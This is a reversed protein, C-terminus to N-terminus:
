FRFLRDLAPKLLPFVLAILGAVAALVGAVIGIIAGVGLGGKKEPAQPATDKDGSDMDPKMPGMGNNDPMSEPVNQPNDEGRPNSEPYNKMSACARLAGAAESKLALLLENREAARQERLFNYGDSFNNPQVDGPNILSHKTFRQLFNDAALAQTAQEPTFSVPTYIGGPIEGTGNLVYDFNTQIIHLASVIDDDNQFNHNTRLINKIGESATNSEQSGRAADKFTQVFTRFQPNELAIKRFVFQDVTMDYGFWRAAKENEKHVTIECMNGTVTSTIPHQASQALAQTPSAVIAAAIGLTLLTMARM